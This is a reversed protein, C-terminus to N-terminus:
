TKVNPVMKELKEHCGGLSNEQKEHKKYFKFEQYVMYNTWFSMGSKRPSAAFCHINDAKFLGEM